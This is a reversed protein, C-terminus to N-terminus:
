PYFILILSISSKGVSEHSVLQLVSALVWREESGTNEVGGHQRQLNVAKLDMKILMSCSPSLIFALDCVRLVGSGLWGQNM